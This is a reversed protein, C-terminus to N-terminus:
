VLAGASIVPLTLGAARPEKEGAYSLHCLPESTILLDPTRNGVGAEAGFCRPM